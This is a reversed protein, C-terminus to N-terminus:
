CNYELYFFVEKIEVKEICGNTLKEFALREVGRKRPNSALSHPSYIPKAHIHIHTSATFM